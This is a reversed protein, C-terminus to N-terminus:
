PTDKPPTTGRHIIEGAEIVLLRGPKLSTWTEDTLPKTAFVYGRTADDHIAGLDVATGRKAFRVPGYPPTRHTLLLSNYGNKDHYAFFREGDSFLCNLSGTENIDRLLGELWGFAEADWAAVGKEEIEGTLYCLLYETDNIGVAQHRRLPM